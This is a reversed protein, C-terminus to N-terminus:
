FSRAFRVVHAGAGLYIDNGVFAWGTQLDPHEGLKRPEHTQPDVVYMTSVGKEGSVLGYVLGDPGTAMARGTRAPQGWPIPSQGAVSRKELDFAYLTSTQSSTGYILGNACFAIHNLRVGEPLNIASEPAETDPAWRFLKTDSVCWMEKKDTLAAAIVKESSMSRKGAQKGTEPDCVVLSGAGEGGGAQVTLYLKGDPGAIMDSFRQSQGISGLDRPNANKDKGATDDALLRYPRNPNYLLLNGSPYCAMFLCDRMVAMACLSGSTGTPIGLDELKSTKPDLRFLHLPRTGGYVKRDPGVVLTQIIAGGRDARLPVKQIAGGGAPVVQVIMQAASLQVKRGDSLTPLSSVTNETPTCRGLRGLFAKLRGRGGSGRSQGGSASGGAPSVFILVQGDDRAQVSAMGAIRESEPLVDTVKSTRPNFALVRAKQDACGIYLLGDSGFAMSCPYSNDPDLKKVAIKAAKKDPDYAILQMSSYTGGYITGDPGTTMSWCYSNPTPVGLDEFEKTRVDFSVLHGGPSTSFYLKNDLGLTLGYVRDEEKLPCLYTKTAGTDPDVELVFVPGERDSAATHLRQFRGTRPAVAQSQGANLSQVPVGLDKFKGSVPVRGLAHSTEGLSVAAANLALAVALLFACRM